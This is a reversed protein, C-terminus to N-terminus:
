FSNKGLDQGKINHNAVEAVAAPVVPLLVDLDLAQLPIPFNEVLPRCEMFRRFSTGKVNLVVFRV